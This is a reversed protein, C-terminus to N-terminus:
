MVPPARESFSGAYDIPKIIAPSPHNYEKYIPALPIMKTEDKAAIKCQKVTLNNYHFTKTSQIEPNNKVIQVNEDNYDEQSSFLNLRMSIAVGLYLWLAMLLPIIQVASLNIIFM